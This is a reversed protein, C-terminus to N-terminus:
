LHETINMLSNSPGSFNRLNPILKNLGMEACKKKILFYKLSAYSQIALHIMFTFVFAAIYYKKICKLRM